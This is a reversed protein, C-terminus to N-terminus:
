RRESAQHSEDDTASTAGLNYQVNKRYKTELDAATKIYANARVIEQLILDPPLVHLGCVRTTYMM